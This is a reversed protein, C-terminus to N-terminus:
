PVVLPAGGRLSINLTLSDAVGYQAATRMWRSTAHMAFAITHPTRTDGSPIINAVSDRVQLLLGKDVASQLPGAVPQITTWGGHDFSKRGLYWQRDSARYLSYRVHRTIRVLAGAEPGHPLTATLTLRQAPSGNGTGASLLPLTACASSPTAGVSQLTSMEWRQARPAPESDAPITWINDGTQPTAFWSTRLVDSGSLPLLDLANRTPLACVVGSGILAHFEIATDSWAILDAASLPRIESAIVEGAQRLERAIESSSNLQRALQHTNLLQAVAVAGLIAAIPLAVLLEILTNGARQATVPM